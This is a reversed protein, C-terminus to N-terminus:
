LRRGAWVVRGIIKLRDTKDESLTETDYRPNDSKVVVSGDLKRQIRKVLLGGNLQLAHISGDLVGRPTMDLLVVDGDSLTPEMSDGIVSVLALDRVSVGLTSRVWEARFSLYDVAQEAHVVAGATEYRPILVYEDTAASASHYSAVPEAIKRPSEGGGKRMPGEGTALWGLNSDTAAAIARLTDFPPYTEKRLYRRITGESVGCKEAVARNSRSGVATKLRDWFTDSDATM